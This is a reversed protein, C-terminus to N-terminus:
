LEHQLYYFVQALCLIKILTQYVNEKLM